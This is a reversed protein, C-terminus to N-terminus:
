QLLERLVFLHLDEQVSPLPLPPLLDLPTLGLPTPCVTTASDGGISIELIM